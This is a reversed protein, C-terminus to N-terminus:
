KPRPKKPAKPSQKVQGFKEIYDLALPNNHKNEKDKKRNELYQDIYTLIIALEIQADKHAQDLEKKIEKYLREYSKIIEPHANSAKLDVILGSLFALFQTKNHNTM